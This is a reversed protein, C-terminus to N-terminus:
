IIQYDLGFLRKGAKKQYIIDVVQFLLFSASITLSNLNALLKPAKNQPVLVGFWVPMWHIPM